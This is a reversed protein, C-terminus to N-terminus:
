RPPRGARGARAARRARAAELEGANERLEPPIFQYGLYEYLEEETAATFVDGTETNKVGYESVSLGRKVAEERLAVNHNKSGTFHQLLNGYCDPPVVRLDVRFGENSIM